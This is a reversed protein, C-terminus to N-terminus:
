LYNKLNDENESTVVITEANSICDNIESEYDWKEEFAEVEELKPMTKPNKPAFITCCDEYPRISIDYTNIKKSIKIIDTKDFIALPRIVPMNTVANIVDMSVLTQSAVQGISEGNALALCKYKKALRESIRYMMRRMITIAYSENSYKYIDEQLKTFPVVHVKIKAQYRNLEKCLDKIKDIVAANTYPPAAFHVCEIAVGRKMLLYSAVPSDIGGSMMMLAKGGVGLPYGGAGLIDSTYIYAADNRITISVLVDPNHVDVKYESNKLVHGAIIRNIDDSIIPYLKDARKARMKFTKKNEKLLLDLVVNKLNEIDTDTKIVLSFSYIGSVDKLREIVTEPNEDNLKIYIHDMRVQYTLSKYEKLANRINDGLRFIFDKKNKGKTSLEGFRVMIHDYKMEM